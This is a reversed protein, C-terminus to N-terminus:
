QAPQAPTPPKREQLRGYAATFGDLSVPADLRQGQVAYSVQLQGGTKLSGLFPDELPANARCGGQNCLTFPVALQPGDDVKLGLGVPLEVGLPTIAVMMPEGRQPHFAITVALLVRDSDANSLVQQMTCFEGSPVNAPSCEFVWSGHNEVLTPEPVNGQPQVQQQAAAPGAAFLAAAAIVGKLATPFRTM